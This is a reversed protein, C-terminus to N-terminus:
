WARLPKVEPLAVPGSEPFEPRLSVTVTVETAGAPVQALLRKVGRNSREPEPREASEVAFAGAAPSLIDVHLRDGNQTLVAHTPSVIEIEADTTMAWTVPYPAKLVYEDQVVAARRGDILAAGRTVQTAHDPYASSLDVLAFAGDAEAGVRVIDAKGNPDQGKGDILPVNHSLSNLRYYDWRKGGKKKDWYGPLNYNDAGLDRAWRNGLADFEFNGLDLHGHNVQNYGGKIGLFLAEEDDWASRTVAVPVTSQFYRDLPLAAQAGAPAAVYWILHHASAPQEELLAHEQQAVGPLDYTDALWFLTPLPKRRSNQGSDAFNLYLGTPGATLLPFYATAAM